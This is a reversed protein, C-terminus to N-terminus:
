ANLKAKVSDLKAILWDIKDDFNYKDNLWKYESHLQKKWNLLKSETDNLITKIKPNNRYDELKDQIKDIEVKIIEYEEGFREKINNIAEEKYDMAKDKLESAWKKVDIRINENFEKLWKGIEKLKEFWEADNVSKRFHDDKRFMYILEGALLWVIWRKLWKFM